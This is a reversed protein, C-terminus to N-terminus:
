VYAQKVSERKVQRYADVRSFNPSSASSESSIHGPAQIMYIYASQISKFNELNSADIDPHYKKVLEFYAKKIDDHSAHQKVGLTTWPTTTNLLCFGRYFGRQKIIL